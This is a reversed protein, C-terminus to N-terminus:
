CPVSQFCNKNTCNKYISVKGDNLVGNDRLGAMLRTKLRTEYQEPNKKNKKQSWSLNGTSKGDELPVVTLTNTPKHSLGPAKLTQELPTLLTIDPM